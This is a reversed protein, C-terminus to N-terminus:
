PRAIPGPVDGIAKVIRRAHNLPASGGVDGRRSIEISVAFSIQRSKARRLAIPIHQLARVIIREHHLESLVAIHRNRRSVCRLLSVLYAILIKEFQRYSTGGIQTSENRRSKFVILTTKMDSLSRNTAWNRCARAKDFMSQVVILERGFSQPDIICCVSESRFVKNFVSM